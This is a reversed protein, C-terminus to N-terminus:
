PGRCHEHIPEGSLLSRNPRGGRRASVASRDPNAKKVKSQVFANSIILCRRDLESEGLSRDPMPVVLVLQAGLDTSAASTQLARHM